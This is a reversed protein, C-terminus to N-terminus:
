VLCVPKMCEDIIILLFMERAKTDGNQRGISSDVLCVALICFIWVKQEALLLRHHIGIRIM